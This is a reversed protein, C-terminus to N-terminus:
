AARVRRLNQYLLAGDIVVSVVAATILAAREVPLLERRRTAVWLTLPVLGVLALSEGAIHVAMQRPGVPYTVAMPAITDPV